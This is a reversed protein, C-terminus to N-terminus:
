GSRAVPTSGAVDLKPVSGFSERFKSEYRPIAAAPASVLRCSSTRGNVAYGSEGSHAATVANRAARHLEGKGSERHQTCASDGM